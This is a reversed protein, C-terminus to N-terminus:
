GCGTTEGCNTCLFCSGNRKTLSGCHVCPPADSSEMKQEPHPSAEANTINPELLDPISASRGAKDVFRLQLWRFVYDMISTAMPIERNGTFGSPEFRTHVFKQCLVGLPVGYQLAISVAQAFSNVLGSVTSGEKAMVIFLEGPEGSPYMGVTLYGKQGGVSFRHTTSRREDPMRQRVAGPRIVGNVHGGRSNGGNTHAPSPPLMMETTQM